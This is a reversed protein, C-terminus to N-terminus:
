CIYSKKRKAKNLVPANTNNSKSYGVMQAIIAFFVLESTSFLMKVWMFHKIDVLTFDEMSTLM